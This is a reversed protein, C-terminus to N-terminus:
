VLRHSFQSDFDEPNEMWTAGLRMKRENIYELISCLRLKEKLETMEPYTWTDLSTNEPKIFSRSILHINRNHFSELQRILSVSITWTESGYLLVTMVITLYLYAMLTKSANDRCLIQHCRHWKIKAKNLNHLVVKQDTNDEAIIRGLYPFSKVQEIPQNFLTM